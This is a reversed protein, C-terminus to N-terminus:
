RWPLWKDWPLPEGRPAAIYPEDLRARQRIRHGIDHDGSALYILLALKAYVSINALPKNGFFKLATGFSKKLRFRGGKFDLSWIEDLSLHVIFGVVVALSKYVRVAESQSPMALYALLGAIAAAPISHWMGRHVTYRKFFEVLVFRIGIYIMMAALAMAEHSLELDRFRHLMLMPVVAACFMSTERLPIGSDSDLDPLMGSVSCLGGALIASEISMGQTSAGWYGYVVGVITSGTIHTKFDAM